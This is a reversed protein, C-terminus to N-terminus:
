RLAAALTVTPPTRVLLTALWVKFTTCAASLLIKLGVTMVWPLVDVRVKVSVLPAPLGACDPMFKVSVSGPAIVTAAVGFMVVVHGDPVPTTVATAPEPLTVTVPAVIFLAWAEHAIVTSTVELVSFLLQAAVGAECVLPAALMPAAARTVLLTVALQRVTCLTGDSFLAKPVLGIPTPCADVSVKVTGLGTPEGAREPRVKLSANVAPRTIAGVGFTTLLQPPAGVMVATAPPLVKAMPPLPTFAAAPGVVQVTLTSTVLVVAM